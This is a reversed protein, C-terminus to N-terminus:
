SIDALIVRERKGLLKKAREVVEKKFRKEFNYLLTEDPSPDGLTRANSAKRLKRIYTGFHCGLDEVLLVPNITIIGEGVTYVETLDRSVWVRWRAMGDHYLGCRLYHYLRKLTTHSPKPWTLQEVVLKFGNKFDEIPLLDTEEGCLDKTEGKYYLSVLEFYSLVISLAAYGAASDSLVLRKAVNLMWGKVRWEFIEIKLNIDWSDPDPYDDSNHKISYHLTM